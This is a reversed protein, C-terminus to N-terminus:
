DSPDKTILTGSSTSAVIKARSPSANKTNEKAKTKDLTKANQQPIKSLANRILKLRGRYGSGREITHTHNTIYYRGSYKNSVNEIQVIRKAKLWPDGIIIARAKVEGEENKKYQADALNKVQRPDRKPTPQVTKGSVTNLTGGSFDGRISVLTNQGGLTNRETTSDSGTKRINTRSVPDRSAREVVASRDTTRHETINFDLLEGDGGFWEYRRSPPRDLRRDHFHLTNDEIYVEFGVEEALRKLFQMDTERVQAIDRKEEGLFRTIDLDLGDVGPFRKEAVMKAPIQWVNVNRWLELKQENVLASREVARVKIERFGEVSDIVHVRPGFVRGPYGFTFEVTNGKVWAPSDLFKQDYNDLTLTLVDQKKEDDEFEFKLVRESVDTLKTLLQNAIGSAGLSGIGSVAALRSDLATSTVKILFGPSSVDRM